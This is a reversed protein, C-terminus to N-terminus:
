GKAQSGGYAMPAARFFAFFLCFFFFFFLSSGQVSDNDDMSVKWLFNSGVGLLDKGDCYIDPERSRILFCMSNLLLKIKALLSAM